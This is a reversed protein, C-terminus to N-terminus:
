LSPFGHLPATLFIEVLFTAKFLWPRLSDTMFLWLYHNPFLLLLHLPGLASALRVQEPCLLLDYPQFLALSLRPPPLCSWTKCPRYSLDLLKSYISPIIFLQQPVKFLCTAHGLQGRVSSERAALPLHISPIPTSTLLGTPLLGQLCGPPVHLTHTHPTCSKTHITYILSAKQSKPKM